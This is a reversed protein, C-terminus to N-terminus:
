KGDQKNWNKPYEYKTNKNTSAIIIDDIHGWVFPTLTRLDAVIANVCKQMVCKQISLM